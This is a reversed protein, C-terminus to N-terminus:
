ESWSHIRKKMEENSITENERSDELGREIMQEFIFERIIEELIRINRFNMKSKKM